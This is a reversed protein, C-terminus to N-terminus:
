ENSKEGGGLYSHHWVEEPIDLFEAIGRITERRGRSILREIRSICQFSVGAGRALDDQTLEADLRYYKIVEGIPMKKLEAISLERENTGLPKLNEGGTHPTTVAATGPERM